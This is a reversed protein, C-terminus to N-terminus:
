QMLFFFNSYRNMKNFRAPNDLVPPAIQTNIAGAIALKDTLYRPTKSNAIQYLQLTPRM